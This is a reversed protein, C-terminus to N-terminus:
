AMYRDGQAVCSMVLLKRSQTRLCDNSPCSNQNARGVLWWVTAPFRARLGKHSTLLRHDTITEAHWLMRRRLRLRQAGALLFIPDPSGALLFIPVLDPFHVNQVSFTETSVM